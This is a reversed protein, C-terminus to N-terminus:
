LGRLMITSDYWPFFLLAFGGSVLVTFEIEMKEGPLLTGHNPIVTYWEPLKEQDLGGIEEGTREEFEGEGLGKGTGVGEDFINGNGCGGGGCGSGGINDCEDSARMARSPSGSESGANSVGDGAGM